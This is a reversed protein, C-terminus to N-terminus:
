ESDDKADEKRKTATRPKAKIAKLEEELAAIREHLLDFETKWEPDHHEETKPVDVVEEKVIKYKEFTPHDLPSFSMTKKYCYPETENFFTMSSGPALPYRRAEDESRVTLIGGNQIQMNQNNNQMQQAAPQQPQQYQMPQQYMPQYPYM